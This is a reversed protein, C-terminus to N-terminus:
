RDNRRVYFVKTLVSVRVLYTVYNRYTAGGSDVGGYYGHKYKRATKGIGVRKCDDASNIANRKDVVAFYVAFHSTCIAPINKM